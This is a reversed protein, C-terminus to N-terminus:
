TIEGNKHGTKRQSQARGQAARLVVHGGQLWRRSGVYREEFEGVELTGHTRALVRDQFIRGGLVMHGPQAVVEGELHVYPAVLSGDVGAPEVGLGLLEAIVVAVGDEGILGADFGLVVQAGEGLFERLLVAYGQGEDDIRLVLEGVGDLGVVVEAHLEADM